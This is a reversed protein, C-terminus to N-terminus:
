LNRFFDRVVTVAEEPTPMSKIFEIGAESTENWIRKDGLLTVAKACMAELSYDSPQLLKSEGYKFMPSGPIDIDIVPLGCAMMEYPVLSPNTPSFAIGIKAHRYKNALDDLTPLLGVNIGPLGQDKIDASGYYEVKTEPVAKRIEVILRKGVEYLRRPTDQKAFFIIGDRRVEPKNRYIEKDVPFDFHPVIKGTTEEIKRAMWEGSTFISIDDEFYTSLANLYSESMPNFWPEFDQVLYAIKSKRSAVRKIFPISSNHVGILVDASRLDSLQDIVSFNALGYNLNISELLEKADRVEGYFFIQCTFESGQLLNALRFVNRHGGSGSVLNPLLWTLTKVKNLEEVKSIRQEKSLSIERLKLVEPKISELCHGTLVSEHAKKGIRSLNNPDLLQELSAEM